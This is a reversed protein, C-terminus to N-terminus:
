DLTIGADRIVTTWKDFETKVFPALKDAPMEMIEGGSNEFPQKMAPMAQAIEQQLKAIVAPPTGAPAFLGLWSDIELDPVGMETMTPVDPMKPNRKAALIGIGKVQGSTVYPMAAPTSDFFLDVRGTLLDPFAVASGRYPIEQMSTGTIKQFAAGVVHQGSGVGVHALKLSNPNKKAAEIIAKPSTHALENSGVLTYSINFVLAVPVLDKLPDYSLKKYLGSNFVVNSLGGVLLTYGDAPATTVAQTGLISGAGPKNEVVFSQGLRKSLQDALVRGVIDYSGAPGFPVVIKVPRDPYTQARTTSPALTISILVLALSAVLRPSPM